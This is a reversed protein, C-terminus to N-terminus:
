SGGVTIYEDLHLNMFGDSNISSIQVYGDVKVSTNGILTAVVHRLKVGTNGGGFEDYESLTPDDEPWSFSLVTDDALTQNSSTVFSTANSKDTVRAYGYAPDSVIGVGTVMMGAEIGKTSDVPIATTNNPTGNVLTEINSSLGSVSARYDIGDRLSFTHSGAAAITLSFPILSSADVFQLKTNNPITCVASLTINGRRTDAVTIGSPIIATTGNFASMLVMGHKIRKYDSVVVLKTSSVNGTGGVASVTEGQTSQATSGEYLAPRSFVVTPLSDFDSTDETVPRITLKRVGRHIMIADGPVTPVQASLSAPQGATSSDVAEITVDYRTDAVVSPLSVTHLSLGSPSIKGVGHATANQFANTTFNYYGGTSATAGSTTSTKKQVYIKYTASSAGYVKIISAAPGHAINSPNVVNTIDYVDGPVPDSKMQYNVVAKHGLNAMVTEDILLSSDQPPTYFVKAKFAEIHNPQSYTIDTIQGIYSDTYGDLNEFTVSPAAGGGMYYKGTAATFQIEVVKTSVENEVSGTHSNITPDSFDINASTTSGAEAVAETVDTIDAVVPNVQFGTGLFSYQTKLYFDRTETVDAAAKEDIDIEFLTDTEWSSNSNFLVEVSVTNSPSGAVGTDAFTVSAIKSYPPQTVNSSPSVTYVLGTETFYEGLEFNAASLPYGSYVGNIISSIELTAITGAPISAGVVAPLTVSSCTWHSTETSQVDSTDWATNNLDNQVTITISNGLTSDNHVISAVGIGQVSFEREDLNSLITTEGSPYGFYKDEKNKFYVQGCTQLNTALNDLYWGDQAALNYYEGDTFDETGLGEATGSVGTYTSANSSSVFAPIGQQSGEYNITMFKKVIEPQDNLLITVDSSSPIGYFTNYGAGAYHEWIGGNDFTYYNNNLSLGSQPHFSKFSIWGKSIESYSATKSDHPTPQSATYKKYTSLNYEKKRDDYTGLCRWINSSMLDSFYDKMGTESIPQIGNEYLALVRGRISDTFYTTSPTVAISEPNKSIGYDGKYPTVDGVVKNSAVLQPNGDANYLADKNTVGRLVKDECFMVLRTDRNLLAQISGYIPNLDKTIKEAAIFQNTDNVGSNSNYIGSWILGHKRREEKIQEGLVTSAKVGNDVQATNFDDRVRDSEV